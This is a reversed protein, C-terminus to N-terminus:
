RYFKVIKRSFNVTEEIDSIFDYEAETNKIDDIIKKVRYKEDNNLANDTNLALYLNNNNSDIGYFKYIGEILNDLSSLLEEQVFPRILYNRSFGNESPNLSLSDCEEAYNHLVDALKYLLYELGPKKNDLKERKVKTYDFNAGDIITHIYTLGEKKNEFLWNLINSSDLKLDRISEKEM